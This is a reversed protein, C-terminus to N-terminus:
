AALMRVALSKCGRAVRDSINLGRFSVAGSADPEGGGPRRRLRNCLQVSRSSYSENPM